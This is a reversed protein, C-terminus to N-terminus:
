GLYSIKKWWRGRSRSDISTETWSGLGLEMLERGVTGRGTKWLRLFCGVNQRRLWQNERWTVDSFHACFNWVSSADSGLDLYHKQNTSDFKGRPVVLWFSGLDPYHRTTLISNKRQNIPRWKAPFGTTADGFTPQKRLSHRGPNRCKDHRRTGM